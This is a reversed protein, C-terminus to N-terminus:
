QLYKEILLSVIKRQNQDSDNVAKDIDIRKRFNPNDKYVEDFMHTFIKKRKETSGGMIRDTLERREKYNVIKEAIEQIREEQEEYEERAKMGDAYGARRASETKASPVVSGIIDGLDEMCDDFFGGEKGQKYGERYSKDLSPDSKDFIGM